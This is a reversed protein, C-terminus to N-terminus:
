RDSQLTVTAAEGKRRQERHELWEFIEDDVCHIKSALHQDTLKVEATASSSKAM